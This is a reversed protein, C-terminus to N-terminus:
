QLHNGHIEVTLKKSLVAPIKAGGGKKVATPQQTTAGNDHSQNTHQIFINKSSTFEILL